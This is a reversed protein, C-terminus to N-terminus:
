GRDIQNAIFHGSLADLRHARRASPPGTCYARSCRTLSKARGEAELWAAFNSVAGAHPRARTRTGEPFIRDRAIWV